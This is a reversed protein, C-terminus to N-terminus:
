DAAARDTGASTDLGHPEDHCSGPGQSYPSIPLDIWSLSELGPGM